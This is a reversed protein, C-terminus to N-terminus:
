FAQTGHSTGFEVIGTMLYIHHLYGLDLFFINETGVPKELGKVDGFM